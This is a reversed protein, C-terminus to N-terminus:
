RFKGMFLYALIALAGTNCISVLVLIKLWLSASTNSPVNSLSGTINIEKPIASETPVERPLNPYNVFTKTTIESNTVRVNNESYYERNFESIYIKMIKNLVYPFLKNSYELFQIITNITGIAALIVLAGEWDISGKKFDVDIHDVDYGIISKFARKIETEIVNKRNDLHNLLGLYYKDIIDTEHSRGLPRLENESWQRLADGQEAFSAVGADGIFSVRIVERLDKKEDMKEKKDM